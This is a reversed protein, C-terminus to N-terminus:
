GEFIRRVGPTKSVALAALLTFALKAFFVATYFAAGSGLPAFWDKWPILDQEIIHMCLLLLSNRGLWDLAACFPKAWRDRYRYLFRITAFVVYSAAFSGVIGLMGGDFQAFVMYFNEYHFAAYLYVAWCVVYLVGFAAPGYARYWDGYETGEEVQRDLLVKAQRVLWGVYMWLLAAMAPQISLPLFLSRVSIVAALFLALVGALRFYRYETAILGRLALSGWFLAWLFWIAGISEMRLPVEPVVGVGFLAAKAWWIVTGALPAHEVLAKPVSFLVILAATVAYPLLLRRAKQKAFAGYTRRTNTFYGALLFFIPLHYLFLFDNWGPIFVHGLVISLIGFGKVGDLFAIRESSM